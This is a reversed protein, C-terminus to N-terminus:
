LSPYPAYFIHCIFCMSVKTVFHTPFINRIFERLGQISVPGRYYSLREGMVGVISPVQSVRLKAALGGARGAHFTAGCIGSFCLLTNLKLDHLM